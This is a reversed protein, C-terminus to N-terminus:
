QCAHQAMRAKAAAYAGDSFPEHHGCRQCVVAPMDADATKRRSRLAHPRSSWRAGPGSVGFETVWLMGFAAATFIGAVLLNPGAQGAAGTRIILVTGWVMGALGAVTLVVWLSWRLRAAVVSLVQYEARDGCTACTLTVPASYVSNPPRGLLVPQTRFRDIRWQPGYTSGVHHMLQVEVEASPIVRVMTVM